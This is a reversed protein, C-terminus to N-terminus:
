WSFDTGLYEYLRQNHPAFYDHLMERTAPEMPAYRGENRNESMPPIDIERDPLRLFDSVKKLTGITDEFMDESKLVLMQEKDFFKHWERLQDVYIGRSLYSFARYNRGVYAEDALMKEKEGRLRGEEAEIAEEFTLPERGQRAKDHYDSVARDIPDRLLAILRARPVVEAARRAAHPHYLYYPSAEGTIVRPGEGRELSPFQSRYWDIGKHFRMDFFHVEKKAAPTVQPYRQLLHYLFTTGCKKGGIIVFDPLAGVSPDDSRLTVAGRKDPESRAPGAQASLKAKLGSVEQSKHELRQRLREVRAQADKLRQTQAERHTDPVEGRTVGGELNIFAKMGRAIKFATNFRYVPM